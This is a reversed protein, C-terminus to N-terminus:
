HSVKTETHPSVPSFEMQKVHHGCVIGDVVTSALSSSRRVTDESGM